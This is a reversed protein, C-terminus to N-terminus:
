DRSDGLQREMKNIKRELYFLFAFIGIFVVVLVAVVAYIKGISRFFDSNEAQALLLTQSTMLMLFVLGTVKRIIM